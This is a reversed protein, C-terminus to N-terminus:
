ELTGACINQYHDSSGIVKVKRLTHGGIGQLIHTMRFRSKLFFPGRIPQLSTKRTKEGAPARWEPYHRLSPGSETRLPCVQRAAARVLHLPLFIIMLGDFRLKSKLSIHQEVIKPLRWSLSHRSCPHAVYVNFPAVITEASGPLWMPSCIELGSPMKFWSLIHVHKNKISGNYM